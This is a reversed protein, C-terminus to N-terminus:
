PNTVTITVTTSPNILTGDAAYLYAALGVPVGYPAPVDTFTCSWLLGTGSLGSPQDGEDYNLFGPPWSLRCIVYPTGGYTGDVHGYVTFSGWSVKGSGDGVRDIKPTATNKPQSQQVEPM